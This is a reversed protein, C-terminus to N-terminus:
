IFFRGIIATIRKKSRRKRRKKNDEYNLYDYIAMKCKPCSKYISHNTKCKPCEIIEEREFAFDNYGLDKNM